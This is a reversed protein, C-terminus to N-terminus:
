DARLRKTSVIKGLPNIVRIIDASYYLYLEENHLKKRRRDSGSLNLYGQLCGTRM